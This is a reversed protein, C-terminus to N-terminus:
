GSVRQISSAFKMFKHVRKVLLSLILCAPADALTEGPEKSNASWSLLKVEIYTSNAISEELYM